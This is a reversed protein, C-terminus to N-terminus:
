LSPRMIGLDHTRTEGEGGNKGELLTVQPRTEPGSGAPSPSTDTATDRHTANLCQIADLMHNPSLHAYRMTTSIDKHDMLKQVTQIDVGRM